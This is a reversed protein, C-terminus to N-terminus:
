QDAPVTRFLRHQDAGLVLGCLRAEARNGLDVRHRPMVAAEGNASAAVVHHRVHDCAERLMAHLDGVKAGLARREFVHKQLQRAMRNPISAGSTSRPSQVSVQSSILIKTRSGSPTIPVTANGTSINTTSPRINPRSFPGADRRGGSMTDASRGIRTEIRIARLATRDSTVMM